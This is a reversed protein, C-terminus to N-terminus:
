SLNQIELPMKLREKGELINKEVEEINNILRMGRGGGGWSAKLM